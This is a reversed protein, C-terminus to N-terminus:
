PAIFSKRGHITRGGEGPSLDHGLKTRWARAEILAGALILSRRVQKSAEGNFDFSEIAWDLATM